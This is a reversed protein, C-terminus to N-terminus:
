PRHAAADAHPSPEALQQRAAALKERLALWHGNGDPPPALQSLDTTLVGCNKAEWYQREAAARANAAAYAQELATEHRKLFHMVAEMEEVTLGYWQAVFHPPLGQKLQDMLDFLTLRTHKITPWALTGTVVQHTNTMDMGQQDMSAVEESRDM